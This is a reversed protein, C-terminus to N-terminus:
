YPIRLRIGEEEALSSDTFANSSHLQQMIIEFDNWDISSTWKQAYDMVRIFPEPNNNHTLAKLASLYNNRYVTPIIIRQEKNALLETNMVIRAMRGNGDAFPHVEAIIFMLFIARSFGADLSRSLEFGQQLTGKVLEPSVFLSQGARNNQQKFAGPGKEPRAKLITEHQKRLLSLFSEFRGPNQEGRQLNAVVQFTGVVDHADEPRRAPITGEFVIEFADRVEFETGEIFNSFYAEFFSINQQSIPSIATDLRITPARNLLAQHLIMFRNIRESDYPEGKIRAIAQKSVPRFSGATHTNLFASVMRSFEIAENEMELEPAIRKIDDRLKNIGDEGNTLLYKELWEELETQTLTRPLKGGRARTPRMNELCARPISSLYLGNLFPRDETIPAKGKRPRLLVGPLLIENDQNAILCVSGDAAPKMEFVTRDAVLAAPFFGAVITWLNRKVIQEPEDRFNPTYLRAAIKRLHDKKVAKSILASMTTNSVVVEPWDSPLNKPM